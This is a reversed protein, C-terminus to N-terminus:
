GLRAAAQPWTQIGPGAAAPSQASAQPCPQQKSWYLWYTAVGLAMTDDPTMQYLPDHRPQPGLAAPDPNM